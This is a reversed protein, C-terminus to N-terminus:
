KLSNATKQATNDANSQTVYHNISVNLNRLMRVERLLTRIRSTIIRLQM